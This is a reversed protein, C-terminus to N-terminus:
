AVAFLRGSRAESAKKARPRRRRIHRRSTINVRGDDEDLHVACNKLHPLHKAIEDGLVRLARKKVRSIHCRSYGLSDAIDLLPHEHFYLREIVEQELKDLRRIASTMIKAVQTKYLDDDPTTQGDGYLASVIDAIKPARAQVQSTSSDDVQAAYGTVEQDEFSPIVSDQVAGAVARILNGRLHFYMFTMFSAGKSPNFRRVAECLSLDVVSDVEQLDLRAHWKRLISRSLKRAKLRYKVVLSHREEETLTGISASADKQSNANLRASNSVTLSSSPVSSISVVTGSIVSSIESTLHQGSSDRVPFDSIKKKLSRVMKKGGMANAFFREDTLFGM